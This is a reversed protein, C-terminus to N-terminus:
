QEAFCDTVYLKNPTKKTKLDLGDVTGIITIEKGTEFKNIYTQKEDKNISCEIELTYKDGEDFYGITIKNNKKDVDKLTSIIRVFKKYYKDYAKLSDENFEIALDVDKITIPNTNYKLKWKGIEM